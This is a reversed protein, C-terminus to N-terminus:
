FFLRQFRICVGHMGIRSLYKRVPFCNITFEEILFGLQSIAEEEKRGIYLLLVNYIQICVPLLITMCANYHCVTSKKFITFALLAPILSSMHILTHTHANLFAQGFM